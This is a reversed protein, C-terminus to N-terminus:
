IIEIKDEVIEVDPWNSELWAVVQQLVRQSHAADNSVVACALVAAQWADQHGIEAASINFERHLRSLLPKLRSRKEKLSTCGPIQLELTLVGIRM